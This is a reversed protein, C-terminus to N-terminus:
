QDDGLNSRWQRVTRRSVGYEEATGSVGWRRLADILEDQCPPKTPSRRLAVGASHLHRYIQDDHIDHAAAIDAVLHGSKYDEVVARHRQALEHPLARTKRPSVKLQALESMLDDYIM